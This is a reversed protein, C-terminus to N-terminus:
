VNRHEKCICSSGTVIFNNNDEDHLYSDTRSVYHSERLSTFLMRYLDRAEQISAVEVTSQEKHLIPGNDYWEDVTYKNCKPCPYLLVKSLAGHEPQVQIIRELHKSYDVASAAMAFMLSPDCDDELGLAKSVKATGEKVQRPTLCGTDPTLEVLERVKTIANMIQGVYGENGMTAECIITSYAEKVAAALDRERAIVRASLTFVSEDQVKTLGLAQWLQDLGAHYQQPTCDFTDRSM